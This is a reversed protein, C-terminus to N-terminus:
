SSHLSVGIASVEREDAHGARGGGLAAARHRGLSAPNCRPAAPTAPSTLSASSYQMSTGSPIRINLIDLKSGHAGERASKKGRMDIVYHAAVAGEVAAISSSVQSLGREEVACKEGADCPAEEAFFARFQAYAALKQSHLFAM